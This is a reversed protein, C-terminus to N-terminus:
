LGGRQHFGRRLPARPPTQAPRPRAAQGAFVQNGASDGNRRCNSCDFGLPSSRLFPQLYQHGNPLLQDVLSFRVLVQPPPSLTLAQKTCGKRDCSSRARLVQGAGSDGRARGRRGSDLAGGAFLDQHPLLVHFPRRPSCSLRSASSRFPELERHRWACCAEPRHPRRGTSLSDRCQRFLPRAGPSSWDVRRPDGILRTDMQWLTARYRTWGTGHRSASRGDRGRELMRRSRSRRRPRRAALGRGNQQRFLLSARAMGYAGWVSDLISCGKEEELTVPESVEARDM